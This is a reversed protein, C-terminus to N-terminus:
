YSSKKKIRKKSTKMVRPLSLTRRKGRKDVVRKRNNWNM